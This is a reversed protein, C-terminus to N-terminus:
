NPGHRDSITLHFQSGLRSSLKLSEDCRTSTMRLSWLPRLVTRSRNLRMEVYSVFISIPNTKEQFLKRRLKKLTESGLHIMGLWLGILPRPQRGRVRVILKRLKMDYASMWDGIQNLDSNLDKCKIDYRSWVTVQYQEYGEKM